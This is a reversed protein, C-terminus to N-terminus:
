GYRKFVILIVKGMSSLATIEISAVTQHEAQLKPSIQCEMQQTTHNSESQNDVSSNCPQNNVISSDQLSNSLLSAHCSPKSTVSGHQSENSSVFSNQSESSLTYSNNSQSSVISNNCSLRSLISSDHSQKNVVVLPSTRSSEDDSLIEGFLEIQQEKRINEKVQESVETHLQGDDEDAAAAADEEMDDDVCQETATLENNEMSVNFNTATGSNCKSKLDAAKNITHIVGTNVDRNSDTFNSHEETDVKTDMENVLTSPSHVADHSGSSITSHSGASSAITVSNSNGDNDERVSFVESVVDDRSDVTDEDDSSSERLSANSFATTMAQWLMASAATAEAAIAESAPVEAATAEVASAEATTAEATTLDSSISDSVNAHSLGPLESPIPETIDCSACGALDTPSAAILDTSVPDTLDESPAKSSINETLNTSGELLHSDLDDSSRDNHRHNRNSSPDGLTTETTQVDEVLCSETASSHENREASSTTADGSQTACLSSKYHPCQKIHRNLRILRCCFAIIQNIFISIKYYM